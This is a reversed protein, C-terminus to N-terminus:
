YGVPTSGEGTAKDYEAQQIEAVNPDNELKKQAAVNDTSLYGVKVSDGFVKERYPQFRVQKPAVEGKDYDPAGIEVSLGAINSKYYKVAM